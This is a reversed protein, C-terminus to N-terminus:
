RHRSKWDSPNIFYRGNVGEPLKDAQTCVKEIDMSHLELNNTAELSVMIRALVIDPTPSFNDYDVHKEMEFGRVIFRVKFRYDSGTKANWKIKYVYTQSCETM